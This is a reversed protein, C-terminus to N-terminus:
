GTISGDTTNQATEVSMVRGNTVQIMYARRFKTFLLVDIAGIGSWESPNLFTENVNLRTANSMSRPWSTYLLIGSKLWTEFDEPGAPNYLQGTHACHDQYFQLFQSHKRDMLASVERGDIFPSYKDALMPDALQQPWQRGDFLIQFNTWTKPVVDSWPFVVQNKTTDPTRLPFKFLSRGETYPGDTLDSHALGVATADAAIDFNTRVEAGSKTPLQQTQVTLNELDLVFRAEATDPGKVFFNFMCMELDQVIIDGAMTGTGFGLNKLAPQIGVIQFGNEVWKASISFNLKLAGSPLAHPFRFFSLPPQYCIEVWGGPGVLQCRDSFYPSYANSVNGPGAGMFFPNAQNIRKDFADVLALHQNITSVVQGGYTVSASSFFHSMCCHAPAVANLTKTKLYMSVTRCDGYLKDSGVQGGSSHLGPMIQTIAPLYGLLGNASIDSTKFLPGAESYTMPSQMFFGDMMDEVCANLERLLNAVVEATVAQSTLWNNEDAPQPGRLCPLQEGATKAYRTGAASVTQTRVDNVVAVAGSAFLQREEYTLVTKTSFAREAAAARLYVVMCIPNEIFRSIFGGEEVDNIARWRANLRDAGLDYAAQPERLNSVASTLTVDHRFGLRFRCRVYSRAPVYWQNAAGVDWRFELRNNAFGRQSYNLATTLECREYHSGVIGLNPVEPAQPLQFLTQTQAM